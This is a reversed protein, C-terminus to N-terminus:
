LSRLGSGADLITRTHSIRPQHNKGSRCKLVKEHADFDQSNEEPLISEIPRKFLSQHLMRRNNRSSKRTHSLHDFSKFQDVFFQVLLFKRNREARPSFHTAFGNKRCVSFLAGSLSSGCYHKLTSNNSYSLIPGYYSVTVLFILIKRSFM